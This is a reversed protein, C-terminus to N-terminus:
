FIGGGSVGREGVFFVCVNKKEIRWSFMSQGKSSSDRHFGGLFYKLNKKWNGKKLQKKKRIEGHFRITAGLKSSSDQHFRELFYGVVLCTKRPSTLLNEM